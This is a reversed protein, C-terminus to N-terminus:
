NKVYKLEDTRKYEEMDSTVVSMGPTLGSLVEVYKHNSDGLRVKRKILKDDGELVFMEYNGPGKFYSGNAILIANSKYDNSIEIGTKLGSQLRKHSPDNLEIAIKVMGGQSQPSIHSLMGSLEQNGIRVTVDAGISVKNVDGEPIEGEIKFSTLDAVVALKQGASVNSGIDSTIFTVVGNIPSPVRGQELTRKLLAVDKNFSNIELQQMGESAKANERENALQTKLQELELEATRLATVAQRIRDGTGSGISDLRKENEVDLRLRNIAMEKVTIQMAIDSLRTRNSLQTQYLRQNNVAQQDILKSYDTEAASLDLELLPTGATVTDGPHVFVRLVTSSVPSNVVQSFAPVVSGSATITTVLPGTTVTSLTVENAKVSKGSIRDVCIILIVIALALGGLRLYSKIRKKRKLDQSIPKDM